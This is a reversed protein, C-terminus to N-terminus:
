FPIKTLDMGWLTYGGIGIGIGGYIGLYTYIYLINIYIGMYGIDVYIGTYQIAFRSMWVHIVCSCSGCTPNGTVWSMQGPWAEMMQSRKGLILWWKKKQAMTWCKRHPRKPQSSPSDCDSCSHAGLIILQNVFGGLQWCICIYWLVDMM